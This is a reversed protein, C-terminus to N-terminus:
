FFSKRSSVALKFDGIIIKLLDNMLRQTSSEHNFFSNIDNQLRQHDMSEDKELQLYQGLQDLFSTQRLTQIGSDTFVRITLVGNVKECKISHFVDGEVQKVSAIPTKQRTQENPEVDRYLTVLLLKEQVNKQNQQQHRVKVGFIELEDSFRAYSLYKISQFSNDEQFPYFPSLYGM